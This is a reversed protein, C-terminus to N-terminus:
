IDSFIDNLNADIEEQPPKMACGKKIDKVRVTQQSVTSASFVTDTPGMLTRNQSNKIGATKITEIFFDRFIDKRYVM